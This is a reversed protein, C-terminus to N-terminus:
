PLDIADLNNTIGQAVGDFYLTFSTCATAAGTTPANCVFVDAGAGSLGTVSFGDLTSLYIDGAGSVDVGDVDEDGGNNLGVDSGDFYQSWTCSTAPGLTGVCHLLDEDQQAGPLGPVGANGFTSILISNDPLLVFADVDEGPADSLGVDSGDFVWSWVDSSYLVVDEDDVLGLGPVFTGGNANFSMMINNADIVVLADVGANGPLGAASADFLRSFASGNWSYIDADDYPGAVGPIVANAATSFYLLDSPPIPTPTATPAPTPTPTPPVPTPTPTPPPPATSLVEDAGMDFGADQPRADGDLDDAPASEGAFAATGADIAPSGAALHYDGPLTESLGVTVIIVTVFDPEQRFAVADLGTDYAALFTPDSGVINSPAGPGYPVSLLSYVPNMTFGSTGFVEQDRIGAPQLAVGDWTYMQNSWFANNFQVPDVFGPAASGYANILYTTFAASYEEAVMGAAHPLGDSDEATSTNANKAITNNVMIVDSADDFALGGGMDTAVNNVIMNNFIRISYDWPQLLRLGGGDDNSLNSQILNNYIDVAGAGTTIPPVEGPDEPNVVFQEGAIM